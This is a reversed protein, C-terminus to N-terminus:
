FVHGSYVTHTPDADFSFSALGESQNFSGSILVNADNEDIGYTLVSHNNPLTFLSYTGDRDGGTNITIKGIYYGVPPKNQVKLSQQEAKLPRFSSFSLVSILAFLLLLSKKM